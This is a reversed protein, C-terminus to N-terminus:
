VRLRSGVLAKPDKEAMALRNRIAEAARAPLSVERRQRAQKPMNKRRIGQTENQVVTGNIIITPRLNTLDDLQRRLVDSPSVTKTQGLVLESLQYRAESDTGIWARAWALALFIPAGFGLRARQLFHARCPAAASSTPLISPTSTLVAWLSITSFLADDMQTSAPSAIRLRQRSTIRNLWVM